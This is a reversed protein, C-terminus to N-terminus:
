RTVCFFHSYIQLFPDASNILRGSCQSVRPRGNIAKPPLSSSEAPAAATPPAVSSTASSCSSPSTLSVSSPANSVSPSASTCENQSPPVTVASSQATEVQLPESPYHSKKLAGADEASKVAGPKEKEEKTGRFLFSSNCIHASVPWLGRTLSLIWRLSVLNEM